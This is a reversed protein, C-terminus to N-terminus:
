LVDIICALRLVDQVGLRSEGIAMDMVVDMVMVMAMVMAMNWVYGYELWLWIGVMAMITAPVLVVNLVKM